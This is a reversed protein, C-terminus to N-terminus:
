WPANMMMIVWGLAGLLGLGVLCAYSLIVFGLWHFLLLGVFFVVLLVLGWNFLRDDNM